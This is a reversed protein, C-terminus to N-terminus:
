AADRRHDSQERIKMLAQYVERAEQDFGHQHYFNALLALEEESRNLADDVKKPPGSQASERTVRKDM